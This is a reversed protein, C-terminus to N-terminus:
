RGRASSTSASRTSSVGPTGDRADRRRHGRRRPAALLRDDGLRRVHDGGARRRRRRRRRPRRRGRGGAARGRLRRLLGAPQGDLARRRPRQAARGARRGPGRRRRDARAAPRTATRPASTSTCTRSSPSRRATTPSLLHIPKKGIVGPVVGDRTALEVRQGVLIQPDWGGVGTFRLFGNDDIHTVILGIEDIHGVVALTPGDGAPSAPSATGMVDVSTEAFARPRARFVAAPATEYGSPGDRHALAPRRAAAHASAALWAARACSSRELPPDGDAPERSVDVM